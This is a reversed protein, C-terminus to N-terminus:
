QGIHGHLGISYSLHLLAWLPRGMSASCIWLPRTFGMSAQVCSDFNLLSGILLYTLPQRYQYQRPISRRAAIIARPRVEPWYLAMASCAIM